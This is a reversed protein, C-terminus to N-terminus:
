NTVSNVASFENLSSDSEFWVTKEMMECLDQYLKNGKKLLGPSFCVSCLAVTHIYVWRLDEVVNRCSKLIVAPNLKDAFCLCQRDTNRGVRKM